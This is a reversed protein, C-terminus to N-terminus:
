DLASWAFARRHSAVALAVILILLWGATALASSLRDRTLPERLAFVPIADFETFTLRGPCVACIKATARGAQHLVRPYMFERLSLQFARTERLFAEHRTRGTGAINALASQVAVPPSVWDVFGSLRDIVRQRHERAVERAALREELEQTILVLRTAYDLSAADIGASGPGLHTILRRRVVDSADAQVSDATQRLESVDLAPSRAPAVVRVAASGVAPIVVTLVLWVAGVTSATSVVGHGRTLALAAVAVWLLSYLAIIALAAITDHWARIIPAGASLLAIVVGLLTGPVLVATLAGLRLAWWRRPAMPQSAVLPLIGADRERGGIAAAAVGLTIPLIFIVVFGLDFIGTALARPPEYDYVPDGGFLTELRIPIAFPLLDSQGVALASLPLHPKAAFRRLFDRSFGSASTPDQWYPVAVTSPREYDAARQRVDAYWASEAQQLRILDLMQDNHLRSANRAGWGGAVGNLVLVAWVIPARLVRRCEYWIM